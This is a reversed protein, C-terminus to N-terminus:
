FSRILNTMADTCAFDIPAEGLANQLHKELRWLITVCDPADARVAYMLATMGHEASGQASVQIGAELGVLHPMVRSHNNIAAYMLATRGQADAMRAEKDALIQVCAESGVAAALMLATQRNRDILGTEREALFRVVESLGQEAAYMLASRGMEDQKCAHTDLLCWAAVVDQRKVAMILDLPNYGPDTCDQTPIGEYPQLIKAIDIHGCTLAIGLATLGDIRCFGAEKTCLLRVVDSHRNEVALMLATEGKGNQRGAQEMHLNVAEVDGAAAAEMLVTRMQPQASVSTYLSANTSELLALKNHMHSLEIRQTTNYQCLSFCIEALRHIDIEMDLLTDLSGSTRANQITSTLQSLLLQIDAEMEGMHGPLALRARNETRALQEMLRQNALMGNHHEQELHKKESRLREIEQQLETVLQHMGQSSGVITESPSPRSQVLQSLQSQAVELEMRVNQIALKTTDLAIASTDVTQTSVSVMDRSSTDQCVEQFALRSRYGQILTQLGKNDATLREITEDRQAVAERSASLSRVLQEIQDNAQLLSGELESLRLTPESVGPERRYEDPPPIKATPTTYGRPINAFSIHLQQTIKLILERNNLLPVHSDPSTEIHTLAAAEEVLSLIARVDSADLNDLPLRETQLFADVTLTSDQPTLGVAASQVGIPSVGTSTHVVSSRDFELPSWADVTDLSLPSTTKSVHTTTQAEVTEVVNVGENETITHTKTETNPRVRTSSATRLTRVSPSRVVEFDEGAEVSDLVVKPKDRSLRAVLKETLVSSGPLHSLEDLLLEDSDHLTLRSQPPDGDIEYAEEICANKLEEIVGELEVIREELERERETPRTVLESSYDSDTQIEKRAYSEESSQEATSLKNRLDQITEKLLNQELALAELTKTTGTYAESERRSVHERVLNRMTAIHGQLEQFENQLDEFNKEEEKELCANTDSLQQKLNAIMDRLINVHQSTLDALGAEGPATSLCLSSYSQTTPVTHRAARCAEELLTDCRELLMFDILRNGSNLLRYLDDLTTDTRNILLKVCDPLHNQVAMELASTGMEDREVSCYPVLTGAIDVRGLQISLMLASRGLPLPINGELPALFECAAAHGGVIAYALATYGDPSLAKAERELVSLCQMHGARSVYMLATLGHPDKRGIMSEHLTRLTDIDGRQAAEFWRPGNDDM